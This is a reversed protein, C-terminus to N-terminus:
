IPNWIDISTISHINEFKDINLKLLAINELKFCKLPKPKYWVQIM